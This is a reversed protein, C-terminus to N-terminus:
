FASRPRLWLWLPPSPFSRPRVPSTSAYCYGPLRGPASGPGLPSVRPHDRVPFAINPCLPVSGRSQLRHRPPAQGPPPALTVFELCWSPDPHVGSTQAPSISSLLPTGTPRRSPQPTWRLVPHPPAPSPAQVVCGLGGFIKGWNRLSNM